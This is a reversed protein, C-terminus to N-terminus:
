GMTYEYRASVNWQGERNFEVLGPSAKARPHCLSLFMSVAFPVVAIFFLSSMMVNRAIAMSSTTNPCLM